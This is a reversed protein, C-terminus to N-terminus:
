AALRHPDTCPALVGGPARAILTVGSAQAVRLALTTPASLAVLTAIGATAAKQVMEYSCRSTVLAFGRRPDAGGRAMAGILKDLANHRGVDERVLALEGGLGAWAAAHVAHGRRKLTQRRPLEAVARAVAAPEAPEGGAVARIPRLAQELSEVGCLGCGTRGALQRRRARLAAFRENTVTLDLTIGNRARSATAALLEHSTALIDESLSFGLAFEELNRPTAMMVAHSVGNYVLAVPVEEAIGHAEGVPASEDM